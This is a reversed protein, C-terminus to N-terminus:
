ASSPMRSTSLDRPSPSTYLLCPVEEAAAQLPAPGAATTVSSSLGVTVVPKNGSVKRLRAKFDVPPQENTDIKCNNEAPTEAQVPDPTGQVMTKPKKLKAKFDVIGSTSSEMKNSNTEEKTQSNSSDHDRSSGNNVETNNSSSTKKLNSKFDINNGGNNCTSNSDEKANSNSSNTNNKSVKRLSDRICM